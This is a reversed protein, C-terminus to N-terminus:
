KSLLFFGNTGIVTLFSAVDVRKALNLFQFIRKWIIRAHPCNKFLHLHTETQDFCCQCQPDFHHIKKQLNEATPLIGHVVNWLLM